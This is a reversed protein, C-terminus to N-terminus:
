CSLGVHMDGQVAAMCCHKLVCLAPESLTNHTLGLPAYKSLTNHTLGLPVTLM